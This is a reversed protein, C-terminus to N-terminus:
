LGMSPVLASIMPLTTATTRRYQDERFPARRLEKKKVKNKEATISHEFDGGGSTKCGASASRPM